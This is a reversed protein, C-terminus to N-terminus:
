SGFTVTPRRQFQRFDTLSVRASGPNGCYGLRRPAARDNIRYSNLLAVKRYYEMSGALVDEGQLEAQALAAAKVAEDHAQGAPHGATLDTINDFYVLFPFKVVYNGGPHPYVVLDWRRSNDQNRRVAAYYSNGTVSTQNENLRRIELESTWSLPVGLNSGAAYTIGGVVEGGFTQPLAFIGGSQMSFVDGSATSADGTVTVVTGSTYGSIVFDGVGDISITAGEMSSYFTAYSATLTTAGATYTGGAITRVKRWKGAALDTAFVGSTHAVLCVYSIATATVLSGVAYSTSAAWSETALTEEAVDAWLTIEALPRQWRWGNPPADTIFMRLGDRVFRTCRDLEYPMTTADPIQAIEDGNAGYYAVGLREAVALILDQFSLASTPEAM